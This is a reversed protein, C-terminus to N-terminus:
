SMPGMHAGLSIQRVHNTQISLIAVYTVSSVLNSFEGRFGQIRSALKEDKWHLKDSKGLREEIGARVNAFHDEYDELGVPQEKLLNHWSDACRRNYGALSEISPTLM